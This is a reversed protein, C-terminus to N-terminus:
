RLINFYFFLVFGFLMTLSSTSSFILYSIVINVRREQRLSGAKKCIVFPNVYLEADWTKSQQKSAKTQAEKTTVLHATHQPLKDPHMIRHLIRNGGKVKLSCRIKLLSPWAIINQRGTCRRYSHQLFYQDRERGTRKGRLSSLGFEWVVLM